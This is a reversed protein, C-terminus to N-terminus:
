QQEPGGLAASQIRALTEAVDDAFGLSWLPQSLSTPSEVPLLVDDTLETVVTAEVDHSTLHTRSTARAALKASAVARDRERLAESM